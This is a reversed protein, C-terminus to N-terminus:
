QSRKREHREPNSVSPHNRGYGEKNQKIEICTTTFIQHEPLREAADTHAKGIAEDRSVAEVQILITQVNMRAPDIKTMTTAVAFLVLPHVSNKAASM